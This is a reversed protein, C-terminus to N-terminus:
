EQSQLGVLGLSVNWLKAEGAEDFAWPAYGVGLMGSDQEWQPAIQCDELYKAGENELAKATAAWVTTAAGQEPSKWAARVEDSGFMQSTEEDSMHKQLGTDIGGPMVSMARLGKSKYRRDIENATWVVATKSQGYAAWQNYAGELKLNDFNVSGMRHGVSSLFVARSNLGSTASRLLADKLLNFLLFHALHNVGFQTEFGDKTRGEPCAMVGANAIFLHLHDAQSLFKSACARVSDLSTLDLELLHVRGSSTLSSLEIEAKPIDRATLYLTAGTAFLARATELGIGSSCGTILVNKGVLRNELQEDKIIQLATPRADGAGTPSKHVEAYRSAM